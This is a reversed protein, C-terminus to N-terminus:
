AQQLEAQIRQVVYPGQTTQRQLYPLSVQVVCYLPVQEAREGQKAGEGTGARERGTGSTGKLQHQQPLLNAFM